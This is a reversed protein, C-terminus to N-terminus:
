PSRTRPIDQPATGLLEAVLQRVAMRETSAAFLRTRTAIQSTLMKLYADPRAQSARCERLLRVVETADGWPFYGAYDEGLLGVNGDIRSALVPTGSMAAELIAHAGGEIRSCHVLVHARQIRRRTEEHSRGGLWRYHPCAAMTLKAERALAKDLAGGIHDILIAEDPKIINAAAFLTAPSKEERLHGVMVVRLHRATKPLALRSSASQFIVRTKARYEPPVALPGREQLTVLRDASALSHQATADGHIDRYLDTGTLVVALSPRAHRRRWAAISAASRRAHLAIMVQDRAAERDPWTDVLRTRYLPALFRWWRQATQWNGNNAAASAPTVIVVQPKSPPM